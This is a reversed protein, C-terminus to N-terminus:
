RRKRPKSSTTLDLGPNLKELVAIRGADYTRELKKRKTTFLRALEEIDTPYLREVMIEHGKSSTVMAPEYGHHTEFDRKYARIESLQSGSLSATAVDEPKATPDYYRIYADLPRNFGEALLRNLPTNKAQRISELSLLHSIPMDEYEDAVLEAEHVTNAVSLATDSVRKGPLKKGKAIPPKGGVYAQHCAIVTWEMFEKTDVEDSRVLRPGYEDLDTVAIVIPLDKPLKEVDLPYDKFIANLLTGMKPIKGFQRMYDLFVDLGARFQKSAMYMAIVSGVSHGVFVDAYDLLGERDLEVAMGIEALGAWGGPGFAIAVYNGDRRSGRVYGSEKRQQLVEITTLREASAEKAEPPELLQQAPHTAIEAPM